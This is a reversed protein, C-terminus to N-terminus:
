ACLSDVVARRRLATSDFPLDAARRRENLRREEDANATARRPGVRIWIRGQYRVPPTASPSVELVAVEGDDVALKRVSMTPPPLITGRDRLGALTRLLEDSVTSAVAMGDDSVGVFLVGPLGYGPMDNAFACIAQSLKDTNADSQKREVRESELDELLLRLDEESHPM